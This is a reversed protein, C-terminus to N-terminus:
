NLLTILGIIIGAIILSCLTGVGVILGIKTYTDMKLTYGAQKVCDKVQRSIDYTNIKVDYAKELGELTTKYARSKILNYTTGKTITVATQAGFRPIGGSWEVSRWENWVKAIKKIEDVEIFVTHLYDIKHKTLLMWFSKNLLDFNVIIRNGEITISFLKDQNLTAQLINVISDM